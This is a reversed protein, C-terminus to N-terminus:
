RRRNLLRSLPAAAALCVLAFYVLWGRAMGWWARKPYGIGVEYGGVRQRPLVPADACAVNLLVRRPSGSVISLHFVGEKGPSLRAWVAGAEPVRVCATVGIGPAGAAIEGKEPLRESDSLPRVHMVIDTGVEAPGRGYRDSLTDWMGAFIVGGIVLPPALLVLLRLNAWLLRLESSIIARPQRWYLLMSYAAVALDKRAQRMRKHAGLYRILALQVLTFVSAIVGLEFYRNGVYWEPVCGAGLRDCATIYAHWISTLDVPDEDATSM